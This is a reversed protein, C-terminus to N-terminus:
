SSQSVFNMEEGRPTAGRPVRRGPPPGAKKILFCPSLIAPSRGAGPSSLRESSARERKQSLSAAPRDCTKKSVWTRARIQPSEKPLIKKAPNKEWGQGETQWGVGGLGGLQPTHGKGRPICPRLGFYLFSPYGSPYGLGSHPTWLPSVRGEPTREEM